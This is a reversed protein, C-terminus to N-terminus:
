LLCFTLILSCQKIKTNIQTAPPHLLFGVAFVVGNCWAAMPAALKIRHGIVPCYGEKGFGIALGILEEIGKARSGALMAALTDLTSRKASEIAGQTIDEYTTHSVHQALKEEIDGM